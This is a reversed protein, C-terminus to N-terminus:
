PCFWVPGVTICGRTQWGYPRYAYRQWHSPASRYRYGPRYAYRRADHGRRFRRDRWTYRQVEVLNSAGLNHQLTQTTPVTQTAPASMASTAAMLSIATAAAITKIM